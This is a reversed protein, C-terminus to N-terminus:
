LCKVIYVTAKRSLDLERPQSLKKAQADYLIRVTPAMPYGPNHLLVQAVEKTNLEVLAGRPYLGIGELFLKVVRKEFQRKNNLIIKIARLSDYSQRWPRQHTLAEYVDSFGIIKAFEAIAENSRGQPYGSGDLREHEQEIADIVQPMAGFSSQSVMDRGQRSHQKIQEYEDNSLKRSQHIMDLYRLIGVDHLFAGIGLAFVESEDWQMALGLQVSIICVNVLNLVQYSLSPNEKSFTLEILEQNGTKSFDIIKKVLSGIEEEDSIAARSVLRSALALAQEYLEKAQLHQQSSGAPLQTDKQLSLASFDIAEDKQEPRNSGAKDNEREKFAESFEIM